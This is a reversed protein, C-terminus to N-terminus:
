NVQSCYLSIHNEFYVYEKCKLEIMKLSIINIIQSDILTDKYSNDIWLVYHFINIDVNYRFPNEEICYPKDLLYKNYLYDNIEYGNNIITEKWKNYKLITDMTRVTEPLPISNDYNLLFDWTLLM